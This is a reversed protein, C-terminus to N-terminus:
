LFREDPEVPDINDVKRDAKLAALRAKTEPNCFGHIRELLWGIPKPDRGEEWAAFYKHVLSMEGEAMAMLLKAAYDPHNKCREGLASHSVGLSRALTARRWLGTRAYELLKNWGREGDPGFPEPPPPLPDRATV